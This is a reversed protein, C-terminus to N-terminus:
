LRKKLKLSVNGGVYHANHIQCIHFRSHLNAPCAQRKVQDNINERRLARIIMYELKILM